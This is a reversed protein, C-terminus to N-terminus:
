LLRTSSEDQIERLSMADRGADVVVHRYFEHVGGLLPKLTTTFV